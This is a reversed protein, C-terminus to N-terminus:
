RRRYAIKGDVITMVTEVNKLDDNPIALPDRDIVVLDALKGPEISGKFGEEWAAFALLFPFEGSVILAAMALLRCSQSVLIVPKRGFRDSLAGWAILGAASSLNLVSQIVGLDVVSVGTSLIFPQWVVFFMGFGLGSVLTQVAMVRINGELALYRAISGM